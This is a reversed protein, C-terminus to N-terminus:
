AATSVDFSLALVDIPRRLLVTTADIIECYAVADPAPYFEM